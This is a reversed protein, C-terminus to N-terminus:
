AGKEQRVTARGHAAIYDSALNHHHVHAGPAAAATMTGIPFGYRYVKDGVALAVRAIKHGLPIASSLSITVGEVLVVAGHPLSRVCILVNDEPALLLFSGAWVDGAPDVAAAASDEEM